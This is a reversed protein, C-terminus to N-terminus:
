ALRRDGRWHSDLTAIRSGQDRITTVGYHLCGPCSRQSTPTPMHLDMLGPIAIAGQRARPDRVDPSPDRSRQERAGTPEIRRDQARVLLDMPASPAARATGDVLRVNRILLPAPNPPTYHLPWGLTREDGSPSRLRWGDGSLFLITGDRAVSPYIAAADGLPVRTM